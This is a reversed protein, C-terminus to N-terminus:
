SRTSYVPPFNSCTSDTMTSSSKEAVMVHRLGVARVSILYPYHYATDFSIVVVLSFEDLYLEVLGLISGIRFVFMWKVIDSDVTFELDMLALQM